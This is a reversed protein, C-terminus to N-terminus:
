QLTATPLASRVTGWAAQEWTSGACMPCTPLAARVTVGYGCASCRYTGAAQTGAESFQVFEDDRQGVSGDDLM